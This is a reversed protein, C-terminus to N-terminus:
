DEIFESNADDTSIKKVSNNLFLRLSEMKKGFEDTPEKKFLRTGDSIYNLLLGYHSYKFDVKKGSLILYYRPKSGWPTKLMQVNSWGYNALMLMDIEEDGWQDESAIRIISMGDDKTDMAAFIMSCKLTDPAPSTDSIYLQLEGVHKELGNKTKVVNEYSVLSNGHVIDAGYWKPSLEDVIARLMMTTYCGHFFMVLDKTSEMEKKLFKAIYLGTLYDATTITNKLVSLIGNKGYLEDYSDYHQPPKLKTLQTKHIYQSKHKKIYWQSEEVKHSICFLFM